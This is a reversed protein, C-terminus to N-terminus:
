RALNGIKGRLRGQDDIIRIVDGDIELRGGSTASRVDLKGKFTVDGVIDVGAGNNDAWVSVQARQGAATASVQWYSRLRGNIEAIVGAQQTVTAIQANQVDRMNGVQYANWETQGERAQGFYARWIWAYSDGQGPQTDYKRFQLLGYAADAPAKVAKSGVHSWGTAAQGGSGPTTRGSWSIGALAGDARYWEVFTEVQCRHAATMFYFQYTQGGFVAIRPSFVAWGGGDPNVSGGHRVYHVNEGSVVWDASPGNWAAELASVNGFEYRTWGQFNNLWESNQVLNGGRVGYSASLTASTQAAAARDTAIAASSAAASAQSKASDPRSGTAFDAALNASSTAQSAKDSAISASEQASTASGAARNSETVDEWFLDTLLVVSAPEARMFPRAGPIEKDPLTITLSFRSWQNGVIGSPVGWVVDSASHVGVGFGGGDSPAKVWGSCRVKRSRWAGPRYDGEVYDYTGSMRFVKTRGLGSPGADAVVSGANWEGRSGDDFVSKRVLNGSAHSASASAWSASVGSQQLASAASGAAGSASSAANDRYTKAESAATQANQRETSATEAQQGAEGAKAFATSASTSAASASAEAAKESTIDIFTFSVVNFEGSRDSYAVLRPRMLPQILEGVTIDRTYTTLPTQVPISAEGSINQGASLYDANFAILDLNIQGGGASTPYGTIEIRYTHGKKLSFAKKPSLEVRVRPSMTCVHRGNEIRYYKDTTAPDSAEAPGQWGNKWYLGAQEFTSPGSTAASLIATDRASASVGASTSAANASGRADSASSAADSRATQAQGRATEAATKASSAAEASQGAETAKASATSASGSAASASTKAAERETVDLLKISRARFRSVGYIVVRPRIYDDGSEATYIQSELRKFSGDMPTEFSPTSDLGVASGNRRGIVIGPGGTMTESANGDWAQMEAVVQYKRGSITKQVGHAQIVLHSGAPVTGVAYGNEYYYTVGAGRDASSWVEDGASLNSPLMSRLTDLSVDKASAAIGASQSARSESGAANSASTAAQDRFGQAEGRATQAAVKASDSASAFQGAETAKASATSASQAAAAANDAAKNSETIDEWFLDTVLVVPGPEARVMPQVSPVERDPLTVTVSFRSWQGPVSNSVGVYLLEGGSTHVGAGFGGGGAPAKVWGSCRVKRGRWAGPRFGGELYDYTGNMRLVKTRGLGAPGADTVISGANWEGRSGDDFVGKRVLNGSAHSAAADRASASVTASSAAANESGKANSASTAANSQSAEAGGKATEAAVKAASAAQASQGAETAKASATSASGAAADAFGIASNRLKETESHYIAAENRASAALGAQQSATSASGRANSESTAAQDRFGQAQGRATEAVVKASDSASASEGAEGAKASATAASEAAASASANAADSETVDQWFLDTWLAGFPTGSRFYPQIGVVNAPITITADFPTWTSVPVAFSPSAFLNTTGDAFKLALGAAPFMNAQPVWVRGRVRVKRGAWTGLRVAGEVADFSNLQLARTFGPLTTIERITVQTWEGVSGDEFTGKRVLNGAAHNAAADRAQASVSASSAASNASGAANHESTAARESYAGAQGAQTTATQAEAQATEAYVGAEGAKRSSTEAHGFATEASGGADTASQASANANDLAQQKAGQAATNAAQADQRAQEALTSYGSAADRAGTAAASASQADQRAQEALAKAAIANVEHEAAADRATVANIASQAAAATDGYTEFLDAIASKAGEISSVVEEAPVGGVNTGPPAGVTANDEPRKGDDDVVGSWNALQAARDALAGALDALAAQVAAFANQFARPDIPTDAALDNWSPTLSALYADLASVAADATAKYSDIGGLQTAKSGNAQHEAHLQAHILLIQPKEPRSLVNDSTIASIDAVITTAAVNAITGIVNGAFQPLHSPQYRLSKATVKPSYIVGTAAIDKDVRRYARVAFDYFKDAPLGPLIISRKSPEAFFSTERPTSM